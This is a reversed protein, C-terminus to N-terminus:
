QVYWSAIKSFLAHLTLSKRHLALSRARQQSYRKVDCSIVFSEPRIPVTDGSYRPLTSVCDFVVGFFINISLGFTAIVTASRGDAALLALVTGDASFQVREITTGGGRQGGRWAKRSLPQIVPLAGVKLGDCWARSFTCRRLSSNKLSCGTLDAGEFSCGDFVGGDM